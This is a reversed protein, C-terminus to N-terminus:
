PRTRVQRSEQDGESICELYLEDLRRVRKIKRDEWDATQQGGLTPLGTQNKEKEKGFNSRSLRM